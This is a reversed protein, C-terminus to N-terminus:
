QQENLADTAQHVHHWINDVIYVSWKQLTITFVPEIMVWWADVM